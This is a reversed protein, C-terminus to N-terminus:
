AIMENLFMQAIRQFSNGGCLILVGIEVRLVTEFAGKDDPWLIGSLGLAISLKIKILRPRM